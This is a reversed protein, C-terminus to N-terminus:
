KLEKLVEQMRTILTLHEIFVQRSLEIKNDLKAKSKSTTPKSFYFDKQYMENFSHAYFDFYLHAYNNRISPIGDLEKLDIENKHYFDSHYNKLIYMLIELKAKFGFEQRSFIAVRFDMLKSKEKIKFHRLIIKEALFELKISEHLIHGRYKIILSEANQEDLHEM